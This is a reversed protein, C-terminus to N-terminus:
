CGPPSGGAIWPKGGPGVAWGESGMWGKGRRVKTSILIAHDSDQAVNPIQGKDVLAGLIHGVFDFASHPPFRTSSSGRRGAACGSAYQGPLASGGAEGLDCGLLRGLLQLRKSEAAHRRLTTVLAAMHWDTLERLGYHNFLFGYAAEAADPRCLWGTHALPTLPPM